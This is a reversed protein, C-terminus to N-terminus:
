TENTLLNGTVEACVSLKNKGNILNVKFEEIGMDKPCEKSLVSEVSVKYKEMMEKWGENSEQGFSLNSVMVM